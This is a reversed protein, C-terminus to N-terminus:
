HQLCRNLITALQEPQDLSVDHGTNEIYHIPCDYFRALAASCQPSVLRDQKAAIIDINCTLQTPANFKVCAWIQRVGNISRCHRELRWVSWQHIYSPQEIAVMSTLALVIRELLSDDQQAAPKLKGDGIYRRLQRFACIFLSNLRFRQYWRSINAASSNILVVREVLQPYQKAIDLAVMGGMSLGVITVPQSLMDPKCLKLQEIVHDGYVSIHYPSASQDFEGNGLMDFCLVEHGSARMRQEFGHWHRKDRMLGRLLVLTAM